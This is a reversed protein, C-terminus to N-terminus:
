DPLSQFARRCGDKITWLISQFGRLQEEPPSGNYIWSTRLEGFFSIWQDLAQFTMQKIPWNFAGYRAQMMTIHGVRKHMEDYLRKEVVWVGKWEPFYRYAFLTDNKDGNKPEKFFETAKRVFLLSLELFSNHLFGPVYPNDAALQALQPAREILKIYGFSAAASAAYFIDPVARRLEDQTPPKESNPPM